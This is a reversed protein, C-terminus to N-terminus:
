AENQRRRENLRIVFYMAAVLAVAVGALGWVNRVLFGKADDGLALGLSVEGFYRIVRATIIVALFRGLSGRLAGASVVFVKLPLPVVPTVAPVFVSLLGYRAFWDQFKQRKGPPPETKSLWRAGRRAALFLGVNGSVSGVVAMFAAFYAVQPRHVSAAGSGILLFDVATPMPVGFSDITSLVLIGWPGYSGLVASLKLLLAKM